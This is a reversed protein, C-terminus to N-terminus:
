GRGAGTSKQFWPNVSPPGTTVSTSNNQQEVQNVMRTAQDKEAPTVQKEDKKGGSRGKRDRRDSQKKKGGQQNQVSMGSGREKAAASASKPKESDSNKGATKNVTSQAVPLSNSDENGSVIQAFSLREAM